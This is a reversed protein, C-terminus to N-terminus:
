PVQLVTSRTFLLVVAVHLLVHLNLKLFFNIKIKIKNESWKVTNRIVLHIVQKM